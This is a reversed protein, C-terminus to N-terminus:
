ILQIIKSIKYMFEKDRNLAKLSPIRLFGPILDIGVKTKDANLVVANKTIIDVILLVVGLWIYSNFFWKLGSKFKNM